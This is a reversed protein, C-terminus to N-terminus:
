HDLRQGPTRGSVLVSGNKFQCSGREKRNSHGKKNNVWSSAVLKCSHLHERDCLAVKSINYAPKSEGVLGKGLLSSAMAILNFISASFGPSVCPESTVHRCGPENLSGQGDCQKAERAM